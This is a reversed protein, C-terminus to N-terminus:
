LQRGEREGGCAVDDVASAAAEGRDLGGPVAGMGEVLPSLVVVGRVEGSNGARVLSVVGRQLFETFLCARQCSCGQGCGAVASWAVLLV